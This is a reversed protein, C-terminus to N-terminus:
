DRPSPSTYLLCVYDLNLKKSTSNVTKAKENVFVGIKATGSPLYRMIEFAEDYSIYRESKKYFIFGIASAGCKISFLADSINTIGCVKTNIM